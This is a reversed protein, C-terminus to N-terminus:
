LNTNRAKDYFRNVRGCIEEVFKIKKSEDIEKITMGECSSMEALRRFCNVTKFSVSYKRTRLELKQKQTM